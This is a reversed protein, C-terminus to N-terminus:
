AAPRRMPDPIVMLAHTARSLEGQLTLLETQLDRVPASRLAAVIPGALYAEASTRDRFVYIGAARGNLEDVTWLKCVLGDQAAIADRARSCMAVYEGVPLDLAFRVLLVTQTESNLQTTTM